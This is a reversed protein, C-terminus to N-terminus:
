LLAQAGPMDGQASLALAQECLYHAQRTSFDGQDAAHMRRAIAAAQPWDRSRECIALLALRAQAEFPTGELRHLADEARDLLAAKLFYLALAPQPRVRRAPPTHTIPPNRTTKRQTSFAPKSSTM